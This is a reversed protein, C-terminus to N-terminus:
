RRAPSVFWDTAVVMFREFRVMSFCRSRRYSLNFTEFLDAATCATHGGRLQAAGGIAAIHVAAWLTAVSAGMSAAGPSEDCAPCSPRSFREAARDHHRGASRTLLRSARSTRRGATGLTPVGGGHGPARRRSHKAKSPSPGLGKRPSGVDLDTLLAAYGRANHARVTCTYTKGATLNGVTIPSGTGTATRSVGGNTSSCNASYKATTLPSGNAQAATLLLFSVRLRGAAVKASTPRAARAPTGVILTPSAASAVSTGAVNTAKVTCTYSKALTAGPVTITVATSGNHVASKAVGGNSSICRATFKTIPSGHDAGATYPVIIPGTTASTTLGPRAIVGTPEAPASPTTPSATDITLIQTASGTNGSPDTVEAVITIEGNSITAATM